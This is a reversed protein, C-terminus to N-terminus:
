ILIEEVIDGSNVSSLGGDETADPFVEAQVRGGGREEEVRQFRLSQQRSNLSQSSGSRRGFNGHMDAMM